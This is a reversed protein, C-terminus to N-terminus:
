AVKRLAEIINEYKGLMLEKNEIANELESIETKYDKFIEDAISVGKLASLLSSLYGRIDSKVRVNLDGVYNEANQMFQEAESGELTGSKRLESPLGSMYSIEPYRINNLVKRIAQTVLTIDLNEDGAEKRLLSVLSKNLTKKWAVMYSKADLEIANEVEIALEDLSNRVFGAKVTAYTRTVTKYKKTLWLFGGRGVYKEYQEQREGESEQIDSKTKRFFSGLKHTLTSKLDVELQEVIDEYANDISRSAQKQTKELTEKQKKIQDIDGDEVRRIKEQTNAILAEQYSLLASKKTKEFNEKKEKLIVEKKEGVEGLLGEIKEINGLLKLNALAVEESDFFDKYQKTLMDWVHKENTDWAEKNNMKKMLAYCIGSSHVVDREFLQQFAPSGQLYEDDKFISKMHGTLGANINSLVKPLLGNGEKKESGFLQLDVQSAVIHIENIGEKSNIRDLLNMDESSLFQGAPSVIFIVDCYKLLEKTREERSVVPDNVGPTDIIQIGKLSPINLKLTVSKTFPMYKGDAAVYEKLKENLEEVNSGTIVNQQSIEDISIGSELIRLYQDYSSTLKENSKLDREANRAAKEETEKKDVKKGRKSQREIIEEYKEKELKEKLALYQEYEKKIDELDDSTFFEVEAEEKEGYELVTLAATMPTAAKPLIEKGEFVLANLLSSKGAKVRGVIGIKLVRADEQMEGLANRLDETKSVAHEDKLVMALETMDHAEVVQELKESLEIISM